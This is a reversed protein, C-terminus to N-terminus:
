RDKRSENYLIYVGAAIFGISFLPSGLQGFLGLAGFGIAFGGLIKV